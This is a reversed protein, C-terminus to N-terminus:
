WMKGSTKGQSGKPAPKTGGKNSKCAKRADSKKTGGQYKKDVIRGGRLTTLTPFNDRLHM